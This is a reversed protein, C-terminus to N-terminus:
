MRKNRFYQRASEELANRPPVQATTRLLKVSEVGYPSKNGLIGFYIVYPARSLMAEILLASSSSISNSTLAHLADIVPRLDFNSLFMFRVDQIRPTLALLTASLFEEDSVRIQDSLFKITDPSLTVTKRLAITLAIKVIKNKNLRIIDVVRPLLEPLIPFNALLVETSIKSMEPDNQHFLHQNYAFVSFQLFNGNPVLIELGSLFYYVDKNDISARKVRINLTSKARSDYESAARKVLTELASIGISDDCHARHAHLFSLILAIYIFLTKSM